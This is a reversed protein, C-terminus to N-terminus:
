DIGVGLLYTVLFLLMLNYFFVIDKFDIIVVLIMLSGSNNLRKTFLMSLKSVLFHNDFIISSIQIILFQILITCKGTHM